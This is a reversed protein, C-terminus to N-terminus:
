VLFSTAPVQEWAPLCEDLTFLCAERVTPLLESALLEARTYTKIITSEDEGVAHRPPVGATMAYLVDIHFHDDGARYPVTLLSIPV